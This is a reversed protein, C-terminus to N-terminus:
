SARSFPWRHVNEALYLVKASVVAKELYKDSLALAHKLTHMSKSRRHGWSNKNHVHKPLADTFIDAALRVAFRAVFHAHPHNRFHVEIGSLLPTDFNVELSLADNAYRRMFKGMRGNHAAETLYLEVVM